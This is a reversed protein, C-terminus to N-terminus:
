DPKNIERPEKGPAKIKKNYTHCKGLSRKQLYAEVVVDTKVKNEAPYANKL